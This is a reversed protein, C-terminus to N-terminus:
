CIQFKRCRSFKDRKIYSLIFLYLITLVFASTMKSQQARNTLIGVGKQSANNRSYKEIYYQLILYVPVFQIICFLLRQYKKAIISELFIFQIKIHKQTM